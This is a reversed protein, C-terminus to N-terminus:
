FHRVLFITRQTAMVKALAIQSLAESIAICQSLSSQSHCMSGIMNSPPSIEWVLKWKMTTLIQNNKNWHSIINITLIKNIIAKSYHAIRKTLHFWRHRINKKTKTLVRLSPPSSLKSLNKLLLDLLYILKNLNSKNIESQKIIKNKM